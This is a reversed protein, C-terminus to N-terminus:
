GATGVTKHVAKLLDAGIRREFQAHVPQLAKQWSARQERTLTHIRTTGAQKIAALAAANDKVAVEREFVTTEKMARELGSRVDAPLGDWFRKNAIVVYGLYAHDSLTLNKQVRHLRQTYFNSLPNEAGDVARQTLSSYLESFSIPLPRAGLAKMQPGVVKSGPQVRMKLGKFDQVTVLPRDASMQKFGNDWFALGVVGSSELKKLMGQGLDSDMVKLVADRDPFLYPLDFLEFERAHLETMKGLTPALMQVWGRQLADLEETDQYLRSSPYVEVRVKGDTYQGALERFKEAGRGKPADPAVVHSFKIVIPEQALTSTPLALTLAAFILAHIKM